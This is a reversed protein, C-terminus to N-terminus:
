EKNSSKNERVAIEYERMVSVGPPLGDGESEKLYERMNGQHIRREFLQPIENELVFNYFGEWDACTYRENLKRMVLGHKTKISDAGIKNCIDLLGARLQDMEDQLRRDAEKWEAEQQKKADRLNIYAVVLSEIDVESM